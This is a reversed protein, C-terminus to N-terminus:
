GRMMPPSRRPWRRMMPSEVPSGSSDASEASSRKTWSPTWTRPPSACHSWIRSGRAAGFHEARLGARTRVGSQQQRFSGGSPARGSTRGVGALLGVQGPRRLCRRRGGLDSRPFRRSGLRRPRPHDPHSARDHACHRWSRPPRGNVPPSPGTSTATGCARHRPAPGTFPVALPAGVRQATSSGSARPRIPPM